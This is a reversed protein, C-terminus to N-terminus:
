STGCACNVGNALELFGAKQGLGQRIQDRSLTPPRSVPRVQLHRTATREARPQVARTKTHGDVLEEVLHACGDFAKCACVWGSCMSVAM